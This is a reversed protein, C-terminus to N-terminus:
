KVNNKIDWSYNTGEVSIRLTKTAKGYMVTAKGAKNKKLIEKAKAVVVGPAYKTKVPLKKVMARVAQVANKNLQNVTPGKDNVTQAKGYGM